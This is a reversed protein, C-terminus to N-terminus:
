KMKKLCTEMKSWYIFNNVLSLLTKDQENYGYSPVYVKETDNSGLRIKFNKKDEPEKFFFSMEKRIWDEKKSFDEKKKFNSNNRKEFSGRGTGRGSGRGIRVGHQYNNRKRDSM